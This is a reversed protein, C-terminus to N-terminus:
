AAARGRWRAAFVILTYIYAAAFALIILASGAENVESNGTGLASLGIVLCGGGFILAYIIGIIRAWEKGMWAAIGVIVEVLAIALVVIGLGAVAGGFADGVVTGGAQDGISKLAAGGLVVVAGLFAWLAGMLILVLAGLKALGTVPGRTVATAPQVWQSGPAAAPQGWAPQAPPASPQPPQSPPQQEM